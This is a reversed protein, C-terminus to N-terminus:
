GSKVKEDPIKKTLLVNRALEIYLLKMQSKSINGEQELAKLILIKSEVDPDLSPSSFLVPPLTFLFVSTGIIELM